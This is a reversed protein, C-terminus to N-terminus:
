GRGPLTGYLIPQWGVFDLISRQEERVRLDYAATVPVIGLRTVDRREKGTACSEGYRKQM